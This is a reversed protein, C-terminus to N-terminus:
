TQNSKRTTNLHPAATTTHHADYAAASRQHDPATVRKPDNLRTEDIKVSQILASALDQGQLGPSTTVYSDRDNGDEDGDSDFMNMPNNAILKAMEELVVWSVAMAYTNSGNMSGKFDLANSNNNPKQVTIIRTRPTEVDQNKWNAAVEGYHDMQNNFRGRILGIIEVVSRARGNPTYFVSTNAKAAAPLLSAASTEPSDIAATLLRSAGTAGLFHALYLDASDPEHGLTRRLSHANTLAYEAAMLASAEPNHRLDLLHRETKPDTVTAKGNPDISIKATLDGYGYREGFREMMDLWTGQTFQFLGKASSTKALADTRLSSEQAAKAVLYQFSVGSKTSASKLGDLTSREVMQGAVQIFDNVNQVM